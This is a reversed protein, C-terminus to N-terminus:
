AELVKKYSKLSNHHFYYIIASALTVISQLGIDGTSDPSAIFATVLGTFLLMLISMIAVQGCYKELAKDVPKRHRKPGGFVGFFGAIIILVYAWNCIAFPWELYFDVKVKFIMSIVNLLLFTWTAGIFGFRVFKNLLINSNFITFSFFPHLIKYFVVM